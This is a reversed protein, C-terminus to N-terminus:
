RLVHRSQHSFCNPCFSLACHGSIPFIPLFAFFSLSHKLFPLFDLIKDKKIYQSFNYLIPFKTFKTLIVKRCQLKGTTKNNQKTLVIKQVLCLNVEENMSKPRSYDYMYM